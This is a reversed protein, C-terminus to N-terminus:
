EVREDENLCIASLMLLVFISIVIGATITAKFTLLNHLGVFIIWAIPGMIIFSCLIMLIHLIWKSKPLYNVVTSGISVCFLPIAVIYLAGKMWIMCVIGLIALLFVLITYSEYNMKKKRVFFWGLFCTIITTLLTTIVFLKYSTNGAEMFDQYGKLDNWALNFYKGYELEHKMIVIFILVSIVVITGCVNLLAPLWKKRNYKKNKRSRHVFLSFGTLAAVFLFIVVGYPLVITNEKTVPFYNVPARNTVDSLDAKGFGLILENITKVSENMTSEKMVSFNDNPNHYAEINEMRMFDLGIIGMDAFPEMDTRYGALTFVSDLFSSGSFDSVKDKALGISGSELGSTRTLLYSGSMGGELDVVLKVNELLDKNNQAFYSAGLMGLEEGDSLLLYIDNNIKNQDINFVSNLAAIVSLGNDGVGNGCEKCDYRSVFLVAEETGKADLHILINRGHFVYDRSYNLQNAIQAIMQDKSELLDVYPLAFEQIEYNMQNSILLSEIYNAAEKQDKSGFARHGKAITELQVKIEEIENQNSKGSSESLLFLSYCLVAMM